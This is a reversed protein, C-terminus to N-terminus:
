SRWTFWGGVRGGVGVRSEELVDSFLSGSSLSSVHLLDSECPAIASQAEGISIGECMCVSGRESERGGWEGCLAQLPPTLLNFDGLQVM